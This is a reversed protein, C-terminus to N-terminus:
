CGKKRKRIFERFTGLNLAGFVFSHIKENNEGRQMSTSLNYVDEEIFAISLNPIQIL